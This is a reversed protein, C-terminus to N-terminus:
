LYSICYSGGSNPITGLSGLSLSSASLHHSSHSVPPRPNDQALVGLPGAGTRHGEPILRRAGQWLEFRPSCDSFADHLLKAIAIASRDDEAEFERAAIRDRWDLFYLRFWVV